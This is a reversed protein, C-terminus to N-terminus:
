RISALFGSAAKLTEPKGIDILNLKAIFYQGIKVDEPLSLLYDMVPFKRNGTKESYDEMSRLAKGNMVYIGAFANEMDGEKHAMKEPRWQEPEQRHWGKLRGKDDFVLKRASERGSTLLTVDNDSEANQQLLSELPADSLIDVNHVLFPEDDEISLLSSAGVIGGGTDLIGTSEDSVSISVGFDKSDLFELIQEGFHHINIVIHYFGEDKLRCIVRELMPIGDVPVLAKPHADTWPKLRTGFGAALIMAKKSM